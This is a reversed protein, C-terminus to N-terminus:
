INLKKEQKNKIAWVFIYDGHSWLNEDIKKMGTDEDGLVIGPVYYTSLLYKNFLYIFYESATYQTGTGSSSPLSIFFFFLCCELGWSFLLRTSFM